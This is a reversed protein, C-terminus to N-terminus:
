VLNVAVGYTYQKMLVSFMVIETTSKAFHRGFATWALHVSMRPTHIFKDNYALSIAM